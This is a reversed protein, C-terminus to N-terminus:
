FNSNKIREMMVYDNMDEAIKPNHINKDNIVFM